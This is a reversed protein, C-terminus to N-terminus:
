SVWSQKFPEQFTSTIYCFHWSKICCAFVRTETHSLCSLRCKDIVTEGPTQLGGCLDSGCTFCMLGSGTAVSCVRLCGCVCVCMCVSLGNLLLFHLSYYLFLSHLATFYATFAMSPLSSGQQQGCFSLHLLCSLFSWKEGEKGGESKVEERWTQLMKFNMYLLFHAAPIGSEAAETILFAEFSGFLRTTSPLLLASSHM